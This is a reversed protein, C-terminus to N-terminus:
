GSRGAKLAALAAFPGEESGVDPTESFVAGPKRPFPDLALSLFEVALMGLDIHGNELPEPPDEDDLTREVEKKTPPSLHDDDAFAAEVPATVDSEFDEATLVCTQRIRAKVEGQVRYRGQGVARAEFTASLSLVAPLELASAIAALQAHEAQLSFAAGERTLKLANIRRSPMSADSM